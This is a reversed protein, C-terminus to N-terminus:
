ENISIDMENIVQLCTGYLDDENTFIDTFKKIDEDILKLDEIQALLYNSEKSAEM